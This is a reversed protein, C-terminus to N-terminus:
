IETLLISFVDLAILCYVLQEAGKGSSLETTRPLQKCVYHSFLAQRHLLLGGRRKRGRTLM